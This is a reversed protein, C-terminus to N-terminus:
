KLMGPALRELFHEITKVREKYSSIDGSHKKQKLMEDVTIGVLLRGTMPQVSSIALTLLKRHGFHLGDFTGGVAVSDFLVKSSIPAGSLFSNSICDESKDDFDCESDLAQQIASVADPEDDLFVVSDDRAVEVKAGLPWHDPPLAVVPELKRRTREANLAAVHEKLGGRGGFNQYKLGRGTAEESVWGCLSDHTCVCDLDKQIDVWSEPATNPLNQPYVVVDPVGREPFEDLVLDWLQSYIEGVYQRLAVLSPPSAGECRLVISLKDTKTIATELIAENAIRDISTYPVSLIAMIHKYPRTNTTDAGNAQKQLTTSQTNSRLRLSPVNKTPSLFRKDFSTTKSFDAKRSDEAALSISPSFAAVLSSLSLLM